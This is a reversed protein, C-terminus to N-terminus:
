HDDGSANGALGAHSAVVQELDIGTDDPIEGGGGGLETGLSEHQDDGVGDVGSDGNHGLNELLVVHDWSTYIDHSLPSILPSDNFLFTIGM